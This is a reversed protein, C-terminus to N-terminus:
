TKLAINKQKQFTQWSDLVGSSMLPVSLLPQIKCINYAANCVFALTFPNKNFYSTTVSM